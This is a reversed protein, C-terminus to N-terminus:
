PSRRGSPRRRRLALWAIALNAGVLVMALALGRGLAGEEFTAEYLTLSLVETTGLPGGGTMVFVLDFVGVTFVAALVLVVVVFPRVGPWVVHRWVDLRGAGGVAAAEYQSSPIRALGSGLFAMAFPAGRWVNAVVLAAMAWEVQQLWAPPQAWGLARLAGNLLGVRPAYVFQWSYAVVVGTTAWPVLYVARFTGRLREPLTARDLVAALGLGLGVQGLVSAGVFVLTNRTARWIEPDGALARYHDLGVWQGTEFAGTVAHVSLWSTWALPYAVLLAVLGVAPTLLLAPLWRDLRSM